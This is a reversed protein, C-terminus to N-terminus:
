TRSPRKTLIDRLRKVKSGLHSYHRYLMATGRQGLVAAVEADPVGRELLATTVTHRGAYATFKGQLGLKKAYWLIRSALKAAYWPEGKRTRFLPGSPHLQALKKVVEMSLPGLPVILAEGTKKFTKHVPSDSDTNHRAFVLAGNSSDLNRMEARILNIPRTGTEFLVTLVDHLDPPVVEMVRRYDEPSIDAEAGRSRCAPMSMGRLPNKSIMHDGEAGAAWNLAAKLATLAYNQTSSGWGPHDEAWWQRIHRAKLDKVLLQPWKDTLDRFHKVYEAHTKPTVRGARGQLYLDLVVKLSNNDGTEPAQAVAMVEHWVAVAEGENEKGRVPLGDRDRLMSQEGNELTVYWTNNGKRYWPYGKQASKRRPM